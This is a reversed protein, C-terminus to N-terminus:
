GISNLTSLYLNSFAQQPNPSLPFRTKLIEYWKQWRLQFNLPAMRKTFNDKITKSLTEANTVPPAQELPEASPEETPPSLEAKLFRAALKRWESNRWPDNIETRRILLALTVASLEFATLYM